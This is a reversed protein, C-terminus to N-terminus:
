LYLPVGVGAGSVNAWTASTVQVVVAGVFPELVPDEGRVLAEFDRERRENLVVAADRGGLSVAHGYLELSMPAGTADDPPADATWHVIGYKALHRGQMRGLDWPFAVLTATLVKAVEANLEDVGEAEV